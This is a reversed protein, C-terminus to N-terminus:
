RRKSATSTTPYESAPVIAVTGNIEQPTLGMSACSPISSSM